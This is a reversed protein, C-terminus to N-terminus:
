RAVTSTSPDLRRKFLTSGVLPCRRPWNELYSVNDIVREDKLTQIGKQPVAGGSIRRNLRLPTRDIRDIQAEPRPLGRDRPGQIRIRFEVSSHIPGAIGAENFDPPMQPHRAMDMIRLRCGRTFIECIQAWPWSPGGSKLDQNLLGVSLDGKTTKWSPHDLTRAPADRPRSRKLGGVRSSRSESSVPLSHICTGPPFKTQIPCWVFCTKAVLLGMWVL